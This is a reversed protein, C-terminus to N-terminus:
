GTRMLWGNRRRCPGGAAADVSPNSGSPLPRVAALAAALASGAAPLLGASGCCTAPPPPRQAAAARRVMAATKRLGADMFSLGQLNEQVGALVLEPDGFDQPFPPNPTVPWTRVTHPLVPTAPVPLPAPAVLVLRPLAYQRSRGGVLVHGYLELLVKREQAASGGASSSLHSTGGAKHLLRGWLGFANQL